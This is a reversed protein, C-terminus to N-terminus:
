NWGGTASSRPWRILHAQGWRTFWFVEKEQSNLEWFEPMKKLAYGRNHIYGKKYLSKQAIYGGTGISVWVPQFINASKSTM